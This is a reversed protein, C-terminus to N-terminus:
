EGIRYVTGGLVVVVKRGLALFRGLGPHKELLDFYDKSLFRIKVDSDRRSTPLTEYTGDVWTEGRLYFTKGGVSRTETLKHGKNKLDKRAKKEARAMLFSIEGAKGSKMAIAEDESVGSFASGIPSLGRVASMTRSFFTSADQAAPAFAGGGRGSRRAEERMRRIRGDAARRAGALDFGEETILYSTYPTVIGYRKALRVISNVSEPDPTGGALRLADLETTVRLNAWLRPLFGHREAEKAFEVPYIFRVDKGAAKGTIVLRGKGHGKYRGMLMLEAGYFIDTVRKPYVQHAEIGEWRITVDTLAPKAVKTYLAGVKAEISEGPRVYDSAGRNTGALKDLFLTNVDDGVGFSFLRARLAGNRRAAARLLEDMNTQGVTPLGDTMFFVMPVSGKRSGLLKFGDDLAREINTGGAAEMREIYRMARAKNDKNAGVLRTEFLNTDTAFDVVGFRDEPRLKSVCFKIAEKAQEM